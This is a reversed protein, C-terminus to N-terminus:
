AEYSHKRAVLSGNLFWKSWISTSNAAFFVQMHRMKARYTRLHVTENGNEGGGGKKEGGADAFTCAAPRYNTQRKQVFVSISELATARTASAYIAYLTSSHRRERLVMIKVYLMKNKMMRGGLIAAARTLTKGLM